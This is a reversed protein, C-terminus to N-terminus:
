QRKKTKDAFVFKDPKVPFGKELIDKLIEQNNLLFEKNQPAIELKLVEELNFLDYKQGEGGIKLKKYEDNDLFAIFRGARRDVYNDFGLFIYNKPRVGLEEETERLGTEEFSENEEKGGGIMDWTNPFPISPIDDRLLLVIKGNHVVLGKTGSIM